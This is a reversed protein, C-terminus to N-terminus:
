IGACKSLWSVLCLKYLVLRGFARKRHAYQSWSPFRYIEETSQGEPPSFIAVTMLPGRIITRVADDDRCDDYHTYCWWRSLTMMAHIGACKSLWWPGGSFPKRLLRTYNLHTLTGDQCSEPPGKLWPLPTRKLSSAQLGCPHSDSGAYSAPSPPPRSLTQATQAYNEGPNNETSVPELTDSSRLYPCIVVPCYARRYPIEINRCFARDDYARVGCSTNICICWSNLICYVNHQNSVAFM